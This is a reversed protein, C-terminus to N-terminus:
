YEGRLVRSVQGSDVKTGEGWLVEGRSGTKTQAAVLSARTNTGAGWIAAIQTRVNTDDLPLGLSRESTQSAILLALWAQRATDTLATYEAVDVLSQITAAEAFKVDVTGAGVSGTDNLMEALAVTNGAAVYSAYGMGVPDTTLETALESLIVTM